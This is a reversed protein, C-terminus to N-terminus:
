QAYELTEGKANIWNAEAVLADAKAALYARKARVLEDEIIIWNDFTTFGTSYQADAIKSREETASLLEGQVGVNEVADLLTAWTEQLDVLVGDKTSRENEVARKHAARAKSVEAFQLAGDFIPVSLQLSASLQTSSPPWSNSARDAGTVALVQPSFTGYASKVGYSASGTRARAQLLAPNSEILRELDPKQALPEKVLFDGRVKTSVFDRRGMAKTLQWQATDLQRETQDLEYLANALNAEAKMMAGKHELGSKYRLTILRLNDKRIKIIDGVVKIMEQAELLNVFATRLELRVDSSTFRFGERAAKVDQTAGKVENISKLGDFILQSGTVGYQYNEVSSNSENKTKAANANADIQPLLGSLTVRKQAKQEDINAAASILDPNNERAERICDVWSMATEARAAGSLLLLGCVLAYTVRVCRM